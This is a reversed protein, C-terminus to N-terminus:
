LLLNEILGRSLPVRLLVSFITYFVATAALSIIVAPLIRAGMWKQIVLIILFATLCFGLTDALLIYFGLTTLILVFSGIGRSSKLWEPLVILPFIKRKLAATACLTAGGVMMAVGILSPFFSSGYLQGRIAPFTKAEIFISIGAGIFIIGVLFDSIKM